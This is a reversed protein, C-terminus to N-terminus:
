GTRRRMNIDLVDYRRFVEECDKLKMGHDLVFDLIAEKGFRKIRTMREIDSESIDNQTCLIGLKKVKKQTAMATDYKIPDYGTVFAM